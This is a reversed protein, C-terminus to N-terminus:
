VGNELYVRFLFDITFLWVGDLQKAANDDTRTVQIVRDNGTLAFDTGDFAAKIAEAIAEGDDYNASFLRFRVRAEDLASGDNAGVIAVCATKVVTCYPLSSDGAEGTCCKSAPLLATLGTQAAWHTHIGKLLKM